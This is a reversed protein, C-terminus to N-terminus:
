NEVNVGMKYFPCWDGFVITVHHKLIGMVALAVASQTNELFRSVGLILVWRNMQGKGSNSGVVFTSDHRELNESTPM